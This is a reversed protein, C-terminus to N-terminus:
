FRAVAIPGLYNITKCRETSTTITSGSTGILPPPERASIVVVSQLAVDTCMVVVPLM